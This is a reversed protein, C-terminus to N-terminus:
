PLRETALIESDKTSLPRTRNQATRTGVGELEKAFCLASQLVTAENSAVSGQEEIAIPLEIKGATATVRVNFLLQGGPRAEVKILEVNVM